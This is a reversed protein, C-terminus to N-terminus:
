QEQPSLASNARPRMSVSVPKTEDLSLLANMQRCLARAEDAQEAKIHTLVFRRLRQFTESVEGYVDYFIQKRMRRSAFEVAEAQGYKLDLRYDVKLLLGGTLIMTGSDEDVQGAVTFKDFDIM